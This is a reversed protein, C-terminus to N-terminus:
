VSRPIRALPEAVGGTVVDFTETMEERAARRLREGRAAARVQEDHGCLEVVALDRGSMAEVLGQEEGTM